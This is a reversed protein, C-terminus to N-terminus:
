LFDKKLHLRGAIENIFHIRQINNKQLVEKLPAQYIDDSDMDNADAEFHVGSLLVCGSGFSSAVLAPKNNSKYVAVVDTLNKQPMDFFCGGNYYVDLNIEGLTIGVARCGKNSAADYPPFVPGVATCPVLSLERKEKIETSNGANFVISECGYYAGACIGLYAGGNIIYEKIQRNGEGNLKAAYPKDAGGPMVFLATEQHWGGEIVDSSLVPTVFYSHGFYKQFFRCTTLFSFNGVGEDAYVCILRKEPM